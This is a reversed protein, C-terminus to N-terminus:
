EPTVGAFRLIEPLHRDFGTFAHDGGGAVCQWGGAYRTVATRWDLVEDGSQVLLFYRSLDALRDVYLARLEAFHADTVEFVEGTYFNNQIGKWAALDDFPHVSPNILVARAAYQEALWTAYFGGLSSGVFTLRSTDAHADVWASV